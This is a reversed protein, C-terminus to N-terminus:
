PIKQTAPTNTATTDRIYSLIDKCLEQCCISDIEAIEQSNQCSGLLYKRDAKPSFSGVNQYRLKRIKQTAVWYM